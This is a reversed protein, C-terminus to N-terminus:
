LRDVFVYGIIILALYISSISYSLLFSLSVQDLSHEAAKREDPNPSLAAQLVLALGPLDM